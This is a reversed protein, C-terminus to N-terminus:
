VGYYKSATGYKSGYKEVAGQNQPFFSPFGMLLKFYPIKKDLTVVLKYDGEAKIGLSSAPKKGATIDDANQIGSFLYAYQSGTAPKVTRQWSYVFDKATLKDGNSWKANKRLTFTYTMGGNSVKTAKAIGPEIKSDKGLRYLGEGTNNLMDFSIVDTATSPDMTPLESSENWNIVQKAALTGSTGTSSKGCAVLALSCFAVALGIGIKKKFKM